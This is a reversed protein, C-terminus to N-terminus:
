WDACTASAAWWGTRGPRRWCTASHPPEVPGVTVPLGTAEATWRCLLENRSGDGVLHARTLERGALAAAGRLTRLRAPALRGLVCRVYRGATRPQGTRALVVDIRSPMDGPALFVPDDSEILAAFPRAAAPDTLLTDLDLSRGKRAWARRCEELLWM